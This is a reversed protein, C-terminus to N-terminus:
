ILPCIAEEIPKNDKNFLSYAGHAEVIFNTKRLYKRISDRVSGPPAYSYEPFDKPFTHSHVIYEVDKWRRFLYNLLPANLSAKGPTSYVKLESDDIGSVYIIEDIEKKGRGTTFFGGSESRMAVTGFVYGSSDEKFSHRYMYILKKFRILETSDVITKSDIVTSYFSDNILDKLVNVFLSWKDFQQLVSREKFVIKYDKTSLSEPIVIVASAKTALAKKHANDIVTNLTDTRIARYTGFIKTYPSLTKIEKQLNIDLSENYPDVIDAGLIIVDYDKAYHRLYTSYEEYTFFNKQNSVKSKIDADFITVKFDTSMADAIIGLYDYSEQKTIYLNDKYHAKVVGATVLVKM